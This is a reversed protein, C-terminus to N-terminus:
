YGNTNVAFNAEEYSYGYNLLENLTWEKRVERDDEFTRIWEYYQSANIRANNYFDIGLESIASNITALSFTKGNITFPYDSTLSDVIAKRSKYTVTKFLDNDNMYNCSYRYMFDLDKSNMILNLLAICDDQSFLDYRGIVFEIEEDTLGNVNLFADHVVSYFYDIHENKNTGDFRWGNISISNKVWDNIKMFAVENYDLHFNSLAFEIESAEFLFDNELRRGIENKIKSESYDFLSYDITNNVIYNLTSLAATNYDPNNKELIKLTVNESFGKEKMEKIIRKESYSKDSIYDLYYNNAEIMIRQQKLYESYFFLSGAVVLIVIVAFYFPLKNNKHDKGGNNNSSTHPISKALSIDRRKNPSSVTIRKTPNIAFGCYPCFKAGDKIEKQCNDCIM